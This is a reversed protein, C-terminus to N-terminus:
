GIVLYFFEKTFWKLVIWHRVPDLLKHMIPTSSLSSRRAACSINLVPSSSSHPYRGQSCFSPRWGTKVCDAPVARAAVRTLRYRLFILARAASQVYFYFVKTRRGLPSVPLSVELFLLSFFAHGDASDQDHFCLHIERPRSYLFLYRCMRMSRRARSLSLPTTFLALSGLM